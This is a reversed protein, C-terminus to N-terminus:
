RRYVFDMRRLAAWFRALGYRCGGLVSRGIVGVLKEDLGIVKEVPRWVTSALSRRGTMRRPEGRRLSHGRRIAPRGFGSSCGISKRDSVVNADPKAAGIGSPNKVPMLPVSALSAPLSGEM